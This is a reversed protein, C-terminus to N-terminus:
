PMYRWTVTFFSSLVGLFGLVFMVAGVYDYKNWRGWPNPMPDGFFHGIAFGIMMMICGITFIM